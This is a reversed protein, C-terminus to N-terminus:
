GEKIEIIKAFSCKINNLRAYEVCFRELCMTKTLNLLNPTTISFSCSGVTNGDINLANFRIEYTMCDIREDWIQLFCWAMPVFKLGAM